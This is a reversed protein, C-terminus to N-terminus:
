VRHIEKKSHSRQTMEKVGHFFKEFGEGGDGGSIDDALLNPDKPVQEFVVRLLGQKFPRVFGRVPDGEFFGFPTFGVGDLMHDFVADLPDAVEGGLVFVFRRQQKLMPHKVIRPAPMEPLLPQGFQPPFIVRDTQGSVAIRRRLPGNM